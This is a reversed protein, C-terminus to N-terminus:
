PPPAVEGSLLQERFAQAPVPRGFLYGQFRQCGLLVLFERIDESEVGEALVTLKLAQAMSLTARVISADGHNDIVGRVFSQDIKLSDVALTQLYRLSSYGTGFDDIAFRLGARQLRDMCDRTASLEDIFISETVELELQTAPIQHREVAGLVADAFGERTFQRASVNVAMLLAGCGPLERFDALLRCAENVVWEGLEYILGSEEAVPIFEAPRIWHGERHWRLLAEAGFIAGHADCQPQLHLELEDREIAERLLQELRLRAEIAEQMERVFFRIGNRGSDKAEYMATDAHRLLDEISDSDEPLVSVGVSTSLYLQNGDSNIPRAIAARIREAAGHTHQTVRDLSGELDTLLVVFEDGGLRAAIDAERLEAALRRAVEVLVADGAGHGLSDNIRKFHDLDLFLVAVHNDRRLAQARAERLRLLLLRRNPLGTLEDFLAQHEVTEEARQHLHSLEFGRVVTANVRRTLTAMFVAYLTAMIALQVAGPSGEALLRVTFPAISLFLFPVAAETFAALSVVSGACMGALVFALLAQAFADDSTFLLYGGAGWSLGSLVAGVTAHRYWRRDARREPAARAFSRAALGRYLTILLVVGLWGILTAARAGDWLLWCLISSNIVVAALSQRLSEFFLSLRDVFVKQALEASAYAPASGDVTLRTTDNPNM